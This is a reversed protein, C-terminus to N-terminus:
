SQSEAWRLFTELIDHLTTPDGGGNFVDNDDVYCHMWPPEPGLGSFNGRKVEVFETRRLGTGQLDVKVWWGPNDTTEISVGHDEEWVGDCHQAYWAQLRTVLDRPSHQNTQVPPRQGQNDLSAM